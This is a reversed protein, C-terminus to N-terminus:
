VRVDVRGAPALFSPRGADVSEAVTEGDLTFAVGRGKEPRDQDRHAPHGDDRLSFSLSGSETRVGADQLAKELTRADRQLLDLTQANEAVIRARLVGDAGFEMRVDIRGLEAPRLQISVRDLGDQGARLIHVAVQKPAPPAHPGGRLSRAAALHQAFDIGGSKGPEPSGGAAQPMDLAMGRESHRDSGHDRPRDGGPGSTAAAARDALGAGQLPTSVTSPKAAPQTGAAGDVGAVDGVPRSQKRDAAEADRLLRAERKAWREAAAESAADEALRPQQGDPEAAGAADQAIDARRQQRGSRDIHAPRDADAPGDAAADDSSPAAAASQETGASEPADGVPPTGATKPESTRRAPEASATAPTRDPLAPNPAKAVPVAEGATGADTEVFTGGDAVSHGPERPKGMPVDKVAAPAAAVAPPPAADAAAPADVPLGTESAIPTVAATPADKSASAAAKDAVGADAPAPKPPLPATPTRVEAPTTGAADTAPGAADASPRGGANGSVPSVPSAEWPAIGEPASMPPVGPSATIGATQVITAAISPDPAVTATGDVPPLEAPTAVVLGASAPMDHLADPDLAAADDLPASVSWFDKLMAQFLADPDIDEAPATGAGGPGSGGQLPLSAPAKQGESAAPDDGLADLVGRFSLGAEGDIGDAAGAAGAVLGPTPRANTPTALIDM